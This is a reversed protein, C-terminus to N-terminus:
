SFLRECFAVLTKRVVFIFPATLTQVVMFSTRLLIQLGTTGGPVFSALYYFVALVQLGGVALVAIYRRVFIAIYLTVLMSTLVSLLPLANIIGGSMISHFFVSPKQLVIVSASALVSSLSMCMVFKTPKLVITPLGIVVACGAFFLSGLMLYVAQLVRGRYAASLPGAEPLSNTIGQFQTVVNDQVSNLQGYVGTFYSSFINENNNDSSKENEKDYTEVFQSFSNSAIKM